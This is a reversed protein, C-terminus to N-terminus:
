STMLTDPQVLLRYSRGDRVLFGSRELRDIARSVTERASGIMEALQRPLGIFGMSLALFASGALILAILLLM